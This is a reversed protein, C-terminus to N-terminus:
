SSSRRRRVRARRQAHRVRRRRGGVGPDRAPRVGGGAARLGHVGDVQEDHVPRQAPEESGAVPGRRRHVPHPHGARGARPRHVGRPRGPGARRAAGGARRLLRGLRDPHVRHRGPRARPGRRRRGPGRHGGRGAPGHRRHLRGPVTRGRRLDPEAPGRKLREPDPGTRVITVDQPQRAAATSRSTGTPTTPPSSTIRPGTRAASWPACAGTPCGPATPSAPSSCSRACTTTTSSSSPATRARPLVPRDALLHGAPQLGPHGRVPRKRRAKLTQWATALFSYAYEAIFSLKSGGPAYPRYKYLEVGDIVQYAPDNRQGEPLGVAVRYGASVLAQCELWVRRDFPVPLNQVIILIRAATSSGKIQEQSPLM